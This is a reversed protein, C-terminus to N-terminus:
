KTAALVDKIAQEVIQPAFPTRKLLDEMEPLCEKFKRRRAVALADFALSYDRSAIMPRLLPVLRPDNGDYTQLAYLASVRVAYPQHPEASAFLLDAGLKADISVMASLAASRVQANMSNRAVREIAAASGIPDLVALAKIADIEVDYAENDNVLGRLRSVTGPNVPLQRLALIAFRRRQLHRHKLEREWFPRLSERKLGALPYTLLIAPTYAKDADLGKTLMTLEADSPSEAAIRALAAERDACDPAYRFVAGLEERSWPNKKIQRLFHHEPDFLAAEPKEPLPVHFEGARASLHIGKRVLKGGVVFGLDPRFDFAAEEQAQKVSVVAEGAAADWRWSWDIVPHGPRRIWQDFWPRLDSSAAASMDACLDATTAPSGRHRALYRHLGAFFNADGLKANLSMLLVAAKDYSHRDFMDSADRYVSTSVPRRYTQSESFYSRSFGEISRKFADEGLSHKAWLSQMYQAFGENLWLQGWDRCTVLDGFWQHALEHSLIWDSTYHGTQPDTLFLGLLTASINEMGGNFDYTFIQAYKEYPYPVGLKDSFFSMMEKTHACTYRLLHPVNPLYFEFIDRGVREGPNPGKPSVYLLPVNKWRDRQVEFPGAVVSALYTAHRRSMRWTVTHTARRKDAVDSVQRGNGIVTWDSPVTTVTESTAFDNPYDWTVAWNRNLDPEGHTWFGRSSPDHPSPEIWHLGPQEVDRPIEARLLHYRVKITFRRGRRANTMPVLLGDVDRRFGSARGDIQVGDIHVYKGAHLRVPAGGRVVRFTNVAVADLRRKPYDVNLTLKLDQLDYGQTPALQAHAALPAFPNQDQPLAIWTPFM